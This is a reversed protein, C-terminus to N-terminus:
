MEQKETSKACHDCPDIQLQLANRLTMKRPSLMESCTQKAHYSDGGDTPVWVIECNKENQAADLEKSSMGWLLYTLTEDDLMGTEALGFTKQIRLVAEEVATNFTATVSSQLYGKDKMVAIVAKVPTGEDGLQMFCVCHKENCECGRDTNMEALAGRMATLCLVILALAALRKM